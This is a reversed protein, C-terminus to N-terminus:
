GLTVDGSFHGAGPEFSLIAGRGAATCGLWRPGGGQVVPMSLRCGAAEAEALLQELDDHEWSSYVEDRDDCADHLGTVGLSPIRTRLDDVVASLQATAEPGCARTASWGPVVVAAVTLALALAVAGGASWRHITKM